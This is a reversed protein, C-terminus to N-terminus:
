KFILFIVLLIIVKLFVNSLLQFNTCKIGIDNLEDYKKVIKDIEEQSSIGKEHMYEKALFRAKIMADNELYTRVAYFVFGFIILISLFMMKYPLVKFIALICIIFFYALYINSFIFNFWLLKKSQISHLCEHAITQIRTYSNKVDAIIIKDSVAIYMSTKAEKNEEIKVKDNNLKKLINKCIELNSPYTDVLKNFKTEEYEAFQKLKRMNIDYIKAMILLIIILLMILIVINM